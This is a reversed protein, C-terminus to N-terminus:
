FANGAIQPTVGGRLIKLLFICPTPSVPSTKPSSPKPSKPVLGQSSRPINLENFFDAPAWDWPAATVKELLQKNWLEEKPFRQVAYAEVVKEGNWILHIYTGWRRGLWTGNLWHTELDKLVAKRKRYLAHEGFEYIDERVAKSFLM